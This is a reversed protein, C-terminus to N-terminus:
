LDWEDKFLAYTLPKRREFEGVDGYDGGQGEFKSLHYDAFAHAFGEDQDHESWEHSWPEEWRPDTIRHELAHGIEHYFVEGTEAVSGSKWITAVLTRSDRDFVGHAGEPVDVRSGLLARIGEEADGPNDYVHIASVNAQLLVSPNVVEAFKLLKKPAEDDTWEPDRYVQAGGIHVGTQIATDIGATPHGSTWKGDEDRPQDPNFELTMLPSKPDYTGQNSIASKIQTPKLAIYIDGEDDTNKIIVGDYRGSRIADRFRKGSAGFQINGAKEGKADIVFPKQISLYVPYVAGSMSEAFHSATEQDGFFGAVQVGPEGHNFAPFETTRGISEILPGREGNKEQTWDYAYMGKYVILPNGKTDVVKSKGFWAKFAKSSPGTTAGGDSWKGDDDRPQDPDWAARLRAHARALVRAAEHPTLLPIM